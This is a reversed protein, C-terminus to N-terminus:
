RNWRPVIRETSAQEAHRQDRNRAKEDDQSLEPVELRQFPMAETIERLPVPDADSGNRGWASDHVVAISEWQHIVSGGEREGHDRTLQLITLRDEGLERNEQV